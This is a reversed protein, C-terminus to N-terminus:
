ARTVVKFSEYVRYLITGCADHTLPAALQDNIGDAILQHYFQAVAAAAQETQTKAATM